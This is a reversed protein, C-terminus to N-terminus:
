PRIGRGPRSLIAAIVLGALAWSVAVDVVLLASYRGPLHFQNWQMGHTGVAAALGMLIAMGWRRAFSASAAPALLVLTIFSATLLPIAFGLVLTMPEFREGGGPEHVILMGIPGRRHRELFDQQQAASIEGEPLGPFFYAGPGPVNERIASTVPAEVPIVDVARRGITMWYAAAWGSLVLAGALMASLLRIM